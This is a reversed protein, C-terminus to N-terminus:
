KLKKEIIKVDRQSLNLQILGNRAGQPDTSAWVGFVLGLTEDRQTTNQISDAWRAAGLPDAGVVTSALQKTVADRKPGAPLESVWKSANISDSMAWIGVLSSYADDFGEDGLRSLFDAAGTPNENAWNVIVTDLLSHVGEKELNSAVYKAADEPFKLSLSGVANSRLSSQLNASNEDIWEITSDFDNQAWQCIVSKLSDSRSSDSINSAERVATIPDIKAWELFINPSHMRRDAEDLNSLWKISDPPSKKAISGCINAVLEDRSQGFPLKDLIKGAGEYDGKQALLQGFDSFMEVRQVDKFNSEVWTLASLPDREFLALGVKHLLASKETSSDMSEIKGIVFNPDNKAINSLVGFLASNRSTGKLNQDIWKLAGSADKQSWYHVLTNIAGNKYEGEDMALILGAAREPNQAIVRNLVQYALDPDKAGGLMIKNLNDWDDDEINSLLLSLITGGQPDSGFVNVSSQIAGARDRHGWIMFLQVLTILRDPEALYSRSYEISGNPDLEFWRSFLATRYFERRAGDIPDIQKWLGEMRSLEAESIEDSLATEPHRGSYDPKVARQEETVVIAAHVVAHPDTDMKATKFSVFRGTGIGAIISVTVILFTKMHNLNKNGIVM